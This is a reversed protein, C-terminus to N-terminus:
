IMVLLLHFSVDVRGKLGFRDTGDPETNWLPCCSVVDVQVSTMIAIQTLDWPNHM